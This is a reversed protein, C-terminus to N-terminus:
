HSNKAHGRLRKEDMVIGCRPCAQFGHVEKLHIDMVVPSEFIGCVECEVYFHRSKIHEIFKRHDM